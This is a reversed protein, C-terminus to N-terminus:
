AMLHLCKGFSPTELQKLPDHGSIFFVGRGPSVLIFPCACNTIQKEKKELRTRQYPLQSQPLMFLYYAYGM